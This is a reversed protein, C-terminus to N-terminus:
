GNDVFIPLLSLSRTEAIHINPDRSFSVDVADSKILIIMQGPSGDVPVPLCRDGRGADLRNGDRGLPYHLSIVGSVSFRSCSSFNATSTPNSNGFRDLIAPEM